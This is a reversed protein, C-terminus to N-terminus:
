HITASIAELRFNHARVTFAGAPYRTLHREFATVADAFSGMQYLVIGRAYDSPYEPSYEPVVALASLLQQHDRKAGRELQYTVLFRHILRQANASAAFLLHQELDLLEAFRACFLAVLTPAFLEHEQLWDRAEELRPLINAGLEAVEVATQPSPARWHQELSRVFLVAQVDRLRLLEQERHDRLLDRVLHRLRAREHHYLDVERKAELHSVRRIREGIGRIDLHLGLAASLQARERLEAHEAQARALDVPPYPVDNPVHPRPVVLVATALAAMLAAM